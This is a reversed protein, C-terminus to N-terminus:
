IQLIAMYIIINWTLMNLVCMCVSGGVRLDLYM